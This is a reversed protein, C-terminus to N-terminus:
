SNRERTPMHYVKARFCIWDLYYQLNERREGAHLTIIRKILACFQNIKQMTKLDRDKTNSVIDEGGVANVLSAHGHFEDHILTAGKEIHSILSEKVM